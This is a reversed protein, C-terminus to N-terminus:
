SPKSVDWRLVAGVGEHGELFDAEVFEVHADTRIAHEVAEEILDVATADKPASGAEHYTEDAERKAGGAVSGKQVLLVEVAGAAAARVSDFAGLAVLEGRKVGASLAQVYTDSHAEEDAKALEVMRGLAPEDDTDEVTFVLDELDASLRGHFRRKAEGPGALAIREIGERRVLGELAEIVDDFFRDMAGQRARQFRMQSWGGKKHRGALDTGETALREAEADEVLHITARAGDLFVLLFPAHEDAFRALPRVYPSSDLVAQAEIPAALSCAAVEGDEIHWFVAAGRAGDDALKQELREQADDWADISGAAAEIADRRALLTRSGLEGDGFLSLYVDRGDLDRAEALARLDPLGDTMVGWRRRSKM